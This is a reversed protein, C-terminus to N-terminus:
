AGGKRTKAKNATKPKGIPTFPNSVPPWAFSTKPKTKPKAM